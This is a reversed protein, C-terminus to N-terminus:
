SCSLCKQELERGCDSGLGLVTNTGPVLSKSDCIPAPLPFLQPTAQGCGGVLM